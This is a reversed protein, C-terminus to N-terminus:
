GAVFDVLRRVAKVKQMQPVLAPTKIVQFNLSLDFDKPQVQSPHYAVYANQTQDYFHIVPFEVSDFAAAILSSCTYKGAEMQGLVKTPDNDNAFTFHVLQTLNVEDYGCGIHELVFRIVQRLRERTIGIPRCVRLNCDRYRDLNTLVIGRQNGDDDKMLSEVVNGGEEVFDRNVSKPLTPSEGVWMVCHTWTHYSFVKIWDSVWHEGEILIVDFARRLKSLSEEVVAVLRSRMAQYGAWTLSGASKGLIVVQSRVGGEPKLLIPNMLACATVGAAEAQVAQARGIEEGFPTVAANLSMNQAKFPAVRRGDQRFIRCLATTLLSKGVSSATGQLM